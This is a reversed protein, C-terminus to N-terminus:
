ARRAWPAGPPGHTPPGGPPPAPGTIVIYPGLPGRCRPSERERRSPEGARIEARAGPIKGPGPVRGQPPTRPARAADSPARRPPARPGLRRAPRGATGAARGPAGPVIPPPRAPPGQPERRARPRTRAKPNRTRAATGAERPGSVRYSHKRAGTRVRARADRTGRRALYMHAAAGAAARGRRPPAPKAPERRREVRGRAGGGGGDGHGGARAGRRFAFTLLM